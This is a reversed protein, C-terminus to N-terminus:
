VGTLSSKLKNLFSAPKAAGAGARARSEPAAQVMAALERYKKSLADQPALEFMLQGLNMARLRLEAAAPLEISQDSGFSRAIAKSDPSIKPQYHDVLVIPNNVPVGIQQLRSQFDLGARCSTISQDVSFILNNANGILLETMDVTPLGCTNVVVHTFLSRLVGVLLFMESTTVELLEMIGETPASLVRVGTKHRPFATDVLNQDLRRLNRLTDMFSFQGELGFLQQAEAFPQGVDVLLVRAEPHQKQLAAALHMANFASQLVPRESALVVLTGERMPDKIVEPVREGLRRVLGALESPRSTFTVFDKAGARMAGLVRDQDLVDSMAVCALTPRAAMLGEIIRVDEVWSERRVPVFLISATAMDILKLVDNLDTQQSMVVEATGELGGQLWVFQDRQQTLIVVSPLNNTM